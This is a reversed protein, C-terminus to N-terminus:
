KMFTYVVVTKQTIKSINSRCNGAPQEVISFHGQKLVKFARNFGM